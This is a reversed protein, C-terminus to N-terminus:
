SEYIIVHPEDEILKYEIRAVDAPFLYGNDIGVVANKDEVEQLIKILEKVTM